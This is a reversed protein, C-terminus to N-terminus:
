TRNANLYEIAKKLTETNDRYHGLGANCHHCLLGRVKGTAHDHDVFLNYSRRAVSVESSSCIACKGEQQKFLEQYNEPTIGYKKLNNKFSRKKQAEKGGKNHYIDLRQATGCEKCCSQYAHTGDKRPTAKKWFQTLPKDLGCATCVQTDGYEKRKM